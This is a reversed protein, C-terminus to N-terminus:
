FYDLIEAPDPGGPSTKYDFKLIRQIQPGHKDLVARAEASNQRIVALLRKGTDGFQPTGELFAAFTEVPDVAPIDALKSAAAQIEDVGRNADHLVLLLSHNEPHYALSLLNTRQDPGLTSLRSLNHLVALKTGQLGTPLPRDTGTSEPPQNKLWEFLSANQNNRLLDMAEALHVDAGENVGFRRRLSDFVDCLNQEWPPIVLTECLLRAYEAVEPTAMLWSVFAYLCQDMQGKAISDLWRASSPRLLVPALNDVVGNIQRKTAEDNKSKDVWRRFMWGTLDTQLRSVKNPIGYQFHQRLTLVRWLVRGDPERALYQTLNPDGKLSEWEGSAQKICVRQLTDTLYPEPVGLYRFRYEISERLEQSGDETNLILRPRRLSADLLVRRDREDLNLSNAARTVMSEINSMTFRNPVAFGGKVDFFTNDKTDEHSALRVALCLPLHLHVFRTYEGENGACPLCPNKDTSGLVIGPPPIPKPLTTWGPLASSLLDKTIAKYCPDCGEQSVLLRHLDLWPQNPSGSNPAGNRRSVTTTKHLHRHDPLGRFLGANRIRLSCEFLINRVVRPLAPETVPRGEPPDIAHATLNQSMRQLIELCVVIHGMESNVTPKQPCSPGNCIYRWAMTPYPSGLIDYLHMVNSFGTLISGTGSSVQFLCMVLRCRRFLHGYTQAFVRDDRDDFRALRLDADDYGLVTKSPGSFGQFPTALLSPVDFPPNSNLNGYKEWLINGVVRWIVGLDVCCERMGNAWGVLSALLGDM